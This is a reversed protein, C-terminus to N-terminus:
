ANWLYRGAGRLLVFLCVWQVSDYSAVQGIWAVYGMNSEIGKVNFQEKLSVPIGHMPGLVSGHAKYYADLEEARKLAEDFFMETCCNVLQHAVAARHCFARCVDM